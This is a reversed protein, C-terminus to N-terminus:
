DGHVVVRGRGDLTGGDPVHLVGNSGMLMRGRADVLTGSTTHEFSGARTTVIRGTSDRVSFHGPGVIALDYDRGTKRLSGRGLSPQADIRAGDATLRGRAALKRFGDTSVNALNQTAIELRTRAGVMASGAWDLADM